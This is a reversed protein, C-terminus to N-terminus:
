VQFVTMALKHPRDVPLSHIRNRTQVPCFRAVRLEALMPLEPCTYVHKFPFRQRIVGKDVARNYTARLIRMYFSVTNM